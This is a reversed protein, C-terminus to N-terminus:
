RECHSSAGIRPNVRDTEIATTRVVGVVVQREGVGPRKAIAASASTGCGRMRVRDGTAAPSEGTLTFYTVGDDSGELTVTAGGFTGGIQVSHAPFRSIQDPTGTSNLPIASWQSQLVGHQVFNTVGNIIAM